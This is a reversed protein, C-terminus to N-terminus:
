YRMINEYYVVKGAEASTVLKSNKGTSDSLSYFVLPEINYTRFFERYLKDAEIYTEWYAEFSAFNDLVDVKDRSEYIRKASDKNLHRVYYVKHDLGELERLYSDIIDDTVLNGNGYLKDYVWSSPFSRDFIINLNLSGNMNSVFDLASYGAVWANNRGLHKDIIDYNCRYVTSPINVRMFTKDITNILLSKAVMDFGEVISISFKSDSKYSLLEMSRLLEPYKKHTHNSCKGSVISKIESVTLNYGSDRLSEHLESYGHVVQNELKIM